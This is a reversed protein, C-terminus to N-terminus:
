EGLLDNKIALFDEESQFPIIIQGRGSNLAKISISRGIKKEFGRIFEDAGLIKIVEKTDSESKVGRNLYNRVRDEVARVSLGKAIIENLLEIQYSDDEISILARGHGMSCKGERMANQVSPHLKLLRLYNTITSRKKGVRESLKEQTIKIEDILRKYSLAIEIPDLEQRQINEVLAMELLEQDNALRVYAPITKLGARKAARFRREGSVLQFEDLDTKRVTIPQIIGLEKISAALEELMEENFHLRPQYPNVSIDDLPLDIINGIIKEAGKDKASKIEKLPEKMLASIGRGLVQKKAKKSPM